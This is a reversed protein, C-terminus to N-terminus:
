FITDELFTFIKNLIISASYEIVGGAKHLKLLVTKM